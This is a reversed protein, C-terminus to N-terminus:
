IIRLKIEPVVKEGSKIHNNIITCGYSIIAGDDIRSGKLVSANEGIWVDNGIISPATKPKEVERGYYPWFEETIERRKKASYFNHTNTDWINVNYSIQCYDGIQVREDSRLQGGSNINTYNGIQIQGNFRIWVKNSLLKSHHGIDMSGDDITITTRQEKSGIVTYQGIQATGHVFLDCNIIKVGEKITLSSDADVYVTSRHIKADRAIIFRADKKIRVNSSYYRWKREFLSVNCFRIIEKLINM